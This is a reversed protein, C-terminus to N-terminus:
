RYVGTEWGEVSGDPMLDGVIMGASPYGMDDGDVYEGVGDGSVYEGVTPVVAYGDYGISDGSVYESLGPVKGATMKAAVTRMLQYATVTIAGVAVQEAVRRSAVKSAVFGLGIAAAVRVVPAMPGTKMQVPLPLVGMLVDIGVASAGGVAAPILTGGIFDGGIPNKRRYRLKRGAVSAEAASTIRHTRRKPATKAPTSKAAKRKPKARSVSKGGARAKNMAVLKRTAAIQAKSRKAKAMTKGKPSAKRRKSPREAPNVILVHPM